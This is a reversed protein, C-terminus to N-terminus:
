TLGAKSKVYALLANYHAQDWGADKLDTEVFALDIVTAKLMEALQTYTFPTKAKTRPTGLRGKLTNASDLFASMADSSKIISSATTKLEAESINGVAFAQRAQMLDQRHWSYNRYAQVYNFVIDADSRTQGALKDTRYGQRRIVNQVESDDSLGLQYLQALIQLTVDTYAHEQFVDKATVGNDLSLTIDANVKNAINGLDLPRDPHRLNWVVIDDLSPSDLQALALKSVRDPSYAMSNALSQQADALGVRGQLYLRVLSGSDLEAQMFKSKAGYEFSLGASQEILNDIYDTKLADLGMFDMVDRAVQSLITLNELPLLQWLIIWGEVDATARIAIDQLLASRQEPTIGQQSAAELIPGMYTQIIAKFRDSIVGAPGNWDNPVMSGALNMGVTRYAKQMDSILSPSKEAILSQVVKGIFDSPDTFFQYLSKGTNVVGNIFDQVPQPMANWAATILPGIVSSLGLWLNGIAWQIVLGLWNLWDIPNISSPTPPFSPTTTTPPAVPTPTPTPTPTPQPPPFGFQGFDIDLTAEVNEALFKDITGAFETNIYVNAVIHWIGLGTTAGVGCHLTHKGTFNRALTLTITNPGPYSAAYWVDCNAYSYLADWMATRDFNFGVPVGSQQIDGSSSTATVVIVINQPVSSQSM